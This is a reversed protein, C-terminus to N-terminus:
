RCMMGSILFFDINMPLVLVVSYIPLFGALGVWDKGGLGLHSEM